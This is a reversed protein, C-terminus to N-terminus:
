AGISNGKEAHINFAKIARAVDKPHMKGEAALAAINVHAIDYRDLAFHRPIPNLEPHISIPSHPPPDPRPLFHTDRDRDEACAGPRRM